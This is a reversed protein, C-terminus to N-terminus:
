DKPQLGANQTQLWNLIEFTCANDMLREPSAARCGGWVGAGGGNQELNTCIGGPM